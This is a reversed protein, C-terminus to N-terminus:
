LGRLLKIHERMEKTMEKEKMPTNKPQPKNTLKGQQKKKRYDELAKERKLQEERKKAKAQRMLEAQKIQKERKTLPREEEVKKDELTQGEKLNVPLLKYGRKVMDVVYKHFQVSEWLMALLNQESRIDKCIKTKRVLLKTADYFIHFLEVNEKKRKELEKVMYNLIIAKNIDELVFKRLLYLASNFNIGPHNLKTRLEEKNM